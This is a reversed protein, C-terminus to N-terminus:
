HRTPEKRTPTPLENITGSEEVEIEDIPIGLLKSVFSKVLEDIHEKDEAIAAAAEAEKESLISELKTYAKDILPQIQELGGQPLRKKIAEYTIFASVIRTIVADQCNGGAAHVLEHQDAWVRDVDEVGKLALDIIVGELNKTYPM